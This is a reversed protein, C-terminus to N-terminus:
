NEPCQVATQTCIGVHTMQVHHELTKLQSAPFITNCVSCVLFITEDAENTAFILEIFPVVIQGLYNFTGARRNINATKAAEIYIPEYLSALEMITSTPITGRLPAMDVLISDIPAIKIHELSMHIGINEIALERAAISGKMTVIRFACYGCRYNGLTNEQNFSETATLKLPWGQGPQGLEMTIASPMERTLALAVAFPDPQARIRLSALSQQSGRLLGPM